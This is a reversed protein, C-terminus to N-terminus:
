FIMKNYIDEEMGYTIEKSQQNNGKSCLLKKKKKLKSDGGKYM